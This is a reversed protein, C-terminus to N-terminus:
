AELPDQRDAQRTDVDSPGGRCCRSVEAKWKELEEPNMNAVKGVLLRALVLLGLAQVWTIQTGGFIEPVLANWLLAVAAVAVVAFAIILITMMTVKFMWHRKM